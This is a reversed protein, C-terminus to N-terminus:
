VAVGVLRDVLTSQGEVESFLLKASKWGGYMKEASLFGHLHAV